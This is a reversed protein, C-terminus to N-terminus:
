DTEALLSRVDYSQSAEDLVAFGAVHANINGNWESPTSYM